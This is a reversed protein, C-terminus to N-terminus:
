FRCCVTNETNWAQFPVTLFDCMIDNGNKHIYENVWIVHYVEGNYEVKVGFLVHGVLTTKLPNSGSIKQFSQFLCPRCGMQSSKASIITAISRPNLGMSHLVAPCNTWNLPADCGIDGVAKMRHCEFTWTLLTQKTTKGGFCAYHIDYELLWLSLPM